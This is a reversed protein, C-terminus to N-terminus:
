LVNTSCGEGLFQETAVNLCSEHSTFPVFPSSHFLSYLREASSHGLADILRVEDNVVYGRSQLNPETAFVGVKMKTGNFYTGIFNVKQVM